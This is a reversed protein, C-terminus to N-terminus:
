VTKSIRDKNNKIKKLENLISEARKCHIKIVRERGEIGGVGEGCERRSLSEGKRDKM